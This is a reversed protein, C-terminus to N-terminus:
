TGVGQLHDKQEEVQNIKLNTKTHLIMQKEVKHVCGDPLELHIPNKKCNM